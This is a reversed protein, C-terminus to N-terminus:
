STLRPRMVRLGSQSGIILRQRDRDLDVLSAAGKDFVDCTSIGNGVGRDDIRSRKGDFGNEMHAAPIPLVPPPPSAAQHM